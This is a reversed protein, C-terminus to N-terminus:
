ATAKRSLREARSSFDRIALLCAMLFSTSLGPLGSTKKWTRNRRALGFQPVSFFMEAIKRRQKLSSRFGPNMM